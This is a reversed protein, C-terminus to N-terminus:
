HTNTSYHYRDM